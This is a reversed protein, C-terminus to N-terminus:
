ARRRRLCLATSIAALTLATGPEPVLAAPTTLSSAAANTFGFNAALVALDSTNVTGDRTYDGQGYGVGSQGFGAALIALDSTNVTGDLNGDGYVTDLEINVLVDLDAQNILGDFNLDYEPFDEGSNGFNDVIENVDDANLVGDGNVDATIPITYDPNDTIVMHWDNPDTFDLRMHTFQGDDQSVTVNELYGTTWPNFGLVVDFPVTEITLVGVPMDEFVMEVDPDGGVISAPLRLEDIVVLPIFTTGGVGSVGLFDRVDTTPSTEDLDLGLSAAMEESILSLQAGSDMLATAGNFVTAPQTAANALPRATVTIDDILPLPAFTPLDNDPGVPENFEVPLQSFEVRYQTAGPPPTPAPPAAAPGPPDSIDISIFGIGFTPGAPDGTMTTLDADVVRDIMAPMGIIGDFSGLDLSPRTFVFQDDIQRNPGVNSFFPDGDHGTYVLDFAGALDLLEIGGVGIEAYEGSIYPDYIDADVGTLVDEVHAGAGFVTGNAGTDLAFVFGNNIALQNTAADFVNVPVRFQDISIGDPRGLDIPTAATVAPALLAACLLSASIRTNM